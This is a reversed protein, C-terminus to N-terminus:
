SRACVDAADLGEETGTGTRGDEVLDDLKFTYNMPEAYQKPQSQREPPAVYDHLVAAGEMYADCAHSSWDHDPESSFIRQEEDYKFHHFRMADSLDSCM